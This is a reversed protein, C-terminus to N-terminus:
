MMQSTAEPLSRIVILTTGTLCAGGFSFLGFSAFSFLGLSLPGLSLSALSLPGLSLFPSLFPGGLSVTSSGAPTRQTAKELSLIRSALPQLSLVMRMQSAAEPLFSAVPPQSLLM